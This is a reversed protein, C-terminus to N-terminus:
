NTIEHLTIKSLVDRISNNIKHIPSKITCMDLLDCNLDTSCKVIGIPGELSEIFDILKIKQLNKNLLYGGNPGKIAYLYNKKCLKQLIKALLEQPINYRSSIQKASYPSKDQNDNIHRLAILAYEISKNINLM